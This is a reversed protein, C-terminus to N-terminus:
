NAFIDWDPLKEGLFLPMKGWTDVTRGTFGHIFVIAREKKNAQKFRIKEIQQFRVSDKM